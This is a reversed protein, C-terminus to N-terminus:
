GIETTSLNALAKKLIDKEGTVDGLERSRQCLVTIAQKQGKSKYKTYGKKLLSLAYVSDMLLSPQTFVGPYFVLPYNDCIFAEM